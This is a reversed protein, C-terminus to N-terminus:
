SRRRVPIYIVNRTARSRKRRLIVERYVCVKNVGAPTVEGAKAEEAERAEAIKLQQALYVSYGALAAALGGIVYLMETTM